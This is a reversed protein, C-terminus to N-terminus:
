GRQAGPQLIIKYLCTLSQCHFAEFLNESQDAEGHCSGARPSPLPSPCLFALGQSGSPAALPIPFLAVVMVRAVSLYAIQLAPASVTGGPLGRSLAGHTHSGHKGRGICNSSNPKLSFCLLNGLVTQASFTLKAVGPPPWPSSGLDGLGGGEVAGPLM